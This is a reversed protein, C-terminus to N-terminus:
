RRKLRELIKNLAEEQQQKIKPKARRKAKQIFGRAQIHGHKTRYPTGYNIFIAKYYDSPNDPNYGTAKYGVRATVKGYDKEIEFQPMRSILSNAVNAKKMQDALERQMTVASQRMASETARDINGGAKEIDRLLQDFGELKLKIAM